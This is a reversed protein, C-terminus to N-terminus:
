MSIHYAGFDFVSASGQSLLEEDKNCGIEM